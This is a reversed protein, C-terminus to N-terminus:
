RSRFGSERVQALGVMRRIQNHLFGKSKVTVEYIDFTPGIPDYVLDYTPTECKKVSCKTITREFPDGADDDREM